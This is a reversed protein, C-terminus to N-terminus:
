RLSRGYRLWGWCYGAARHLVTEPRAAPEAAAATMKAKRWEAADIAVFARRLDRHTLFMSLRREDDSAAYDKLLTDLTNM